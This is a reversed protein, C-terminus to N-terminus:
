RVTITCRVAGPVVTVSAAPATVTKEDAPAIIDIEM